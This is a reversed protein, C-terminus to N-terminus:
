AREGEINKPVFRATSLSVGIVKVVRGCDCVKLVAEVGWNNNAFFLSQVIQQQYHGEGALRLIKLATGSCCDSLELKSCFHKFKNQVQAHYNTEHNNTM